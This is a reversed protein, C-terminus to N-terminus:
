ELSVRPDIVAQLVDVFLNSFVYFVTVILAVSVVIPFDITLIANVLYTGLGPWLFVIEVLMAGSIQWVFSLSLVMLTPVIANKLALKFYVTRRTLGAAWAATIYKQQLVEVMTARTMRISLGIAYSALAVSPLILHRLVDRFASWNGSLATDVLYFGTIQEIPALIAIERSVRGGIPLLDLQRVFLLQLLLALWFVPMSVNIVAFIRSFHDIWGDKFAASLVGLPIGIVLTFIMSLLVLELTAPLFVKLDDVIPRRSRVSIGFDGRLVEGMYRVYQQYLPRDLGLKIRAAERTEPKARPGVYLAVPDSPVMRAIVFTIISVGVLVLLALLLRRVVYEAKAV